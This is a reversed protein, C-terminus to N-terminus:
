LESWNFWSFLLSDVSPWHFGHQRLCAEVREHIINWPLDSDIDWAVYGGDTYLQVYYKRNKGEIEVRIAELISNWQAWQRLASMWNAERGQLINLKFYHYRYEEQPVFWDLQLREPM